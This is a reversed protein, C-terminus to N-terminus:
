LYHESQTRFNESTTARRQVIYLTEELQSEKGPARNKEFFGLIKSLKDWTGGL